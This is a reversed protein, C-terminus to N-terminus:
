LSCGCLRYVVWLAAKSCSSLFWTHCEYAAHVYGRALIRTMEHLSKCLEANVVVGTDSIQPKNQARIESVALYVLYVVRSKGQKSHGGKM